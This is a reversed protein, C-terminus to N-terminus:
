LQQYIPNTTKTAPPVISKYYTQPPNTLIPIQTITNSIQQKDSGPHVLDVTHIGNLCEGPYSPHVPYSLKSLSTRQM